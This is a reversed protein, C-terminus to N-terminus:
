SAAPTNAHAAAVAAFAESLRLAYHRLVRVEEHVGEASHLLVAAITCGKAFLAYALRRRSMCTILPIGRSACHSRIEELTGVIGMEQVTRRKGGPLPHTAAATAGRVADCPGKQDFGACAEIDSALLVVPVRTAAARLGKLTERLGTTYFRRAKFQLPKEQKMRRQLHYQQQLITFVLDDLADTLLNTCYAGVFNVTPSVAPGTLSAQEDQANEPGAGMFRSLEERAVRRPYRHSRCDIWAALPHCGVGVQALSPYFSFYNPEGTVEAAAGALKVANSAAAGEAVSKSAGVDHRLLCLTPAAEEADTVAMANSRWRLAAANLRKKLQRIHRMHQGAGAYDRGRMARHLRGYIAELDAVLGQMRRLQRRQRQPAHAPADVSTPSAGGGFSEPEEGDSSAGVSPERPQAGDSCSLLSEFAAKREAHITRRLKSVRARHNFPADPDRRKGKRLRTGPPAAAWPGPFPRVGRKKKERQPGAADAAGEERELRPHTRPQRQGATPSPPPPLFDSVYVVARQM